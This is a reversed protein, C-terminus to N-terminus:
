GFLVIPIDFLGKRADQVLSSAKKEAEKLQNM